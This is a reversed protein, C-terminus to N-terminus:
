ISRAGCRCLPLIYYPFKQIFLAGTRCKDPMQRVTSIPVRTRVTHCTPWFCRQESDVPRVKRGKASRWKANWPSNQPRILQHRHRPAPKGSPEGCGVPLLACGPYAARAGERCWLGNVKAVCCATRQLLSGRMLPGVSQLWAIGPWRLQQTLWEDQTPCRKHLQAHQRLPPRAADM